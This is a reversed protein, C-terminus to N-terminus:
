IKKTGTIGSACNDFYSITRADLGAKLFLELCADSNGFKNTYTWLMRYESPNGLMLKGLVPIVKGLYLGYLFRLGASRPKSVEIFSFCGGPKLLRRVECAMSYIQDPNFTKLGFACIIHDYSNEKLTSQLVNERLLTIRGQFQKQNKRDAGQLMGESFDLASIEAKPFHRQIHQWTEGMGCLLDLVKVRESSGPLIEVFQRRWRISFGFSTIYNMREYSASMRNFLGRVFEPQYIEEEM